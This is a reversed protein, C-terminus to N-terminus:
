LHEEFNNEDLLVVGLQKAVQKQEENNYGWNALYCNVGLKKIDKFYSVQDDIFYIDNFEVNFYNKIKNLQENKDISFSADVIIEFHLDIKKLIPELIQKRNGTSIAFKYNNKLNIIRNIIPYIKVLKSINSPTHKKDYYYKDFLMGDTELNKKYEDFENQNNIIINNDIIHMIVYYCTSTKIFSRLSYYRNTIKKHKIILKNFNQITFPKGGFLPTSPNMRLYANFGVFLSRHQTDAIVGDYDLVLIKM